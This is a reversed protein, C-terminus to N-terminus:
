QRSNPHRRTPCGPGPSTPSAATPSSPPPGRPPTPPPGCPPRPAPAPASTASPSGRSTPEERLWATADLLPGALLAIDFVNHRDAEEVDTLLDFLLTGLGARHLGDAVFRNRPSHRSSGSGHAFVVVATAGDPVTLRGGLRVAGATM